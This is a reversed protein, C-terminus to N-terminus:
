DAADPSVVEWKGFLSLGAAGALSVSAQNDLQCRYQPEYGQVCAYRSISRVVSRGHGRGRFPPLTLVGIDAIPARGWPYASAACVLNGQEFAGFAAWHDLEVYAADLDEDSAAARFEEFVAGDHETLQRAGSSLDDHLLAHKDADAFYFLYDAGHLTIGADALHKRFISETLDRWSALGLRSAVAPTLVANLRGDATELMMVRRDDPLDPNSAVVFRDNSLLVHGGLFSARWMEAVAPSHLALTSV